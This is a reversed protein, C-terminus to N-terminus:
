WVMKSFGQLPEKLAEFVENCGCLIELLDFSKIGAM